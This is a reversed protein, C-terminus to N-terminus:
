TNKTIQYTELTHAFNPPSFKKFVKIKLSKYIKWAVHFVLAIRPCNEQFIKKFTVM